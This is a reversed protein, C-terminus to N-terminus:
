HHHLDFSLGVIVATLAFKQLDEQHSSVSILWFSHCCCLSVLLIRDFERIGLLKTATALSTPETIAAYSYTNTPNSIKIVIEHLPIM